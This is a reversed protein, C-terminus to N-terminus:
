PLIKDSLDVREIRWGEPRKVRKLKWAIARKVVMGEDSYTIITSVEVTAFKGSVEIKPRGLLSLNQVKYQQVASRALVAIAAKTVRGTKGPGWGLYEDDFYTMAHDIKDPVSEAIDKMALVIRERDTVVLKEVAFTLLGM